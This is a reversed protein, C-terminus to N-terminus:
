LELATVDYKVNGSRLLHFCKNVSKATVMPKGPCDVMYDLYAMKKSQADVKNVLPPHEAVSATNVALGKM